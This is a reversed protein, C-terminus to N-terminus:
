PQDFIQLVAARFSSPDIAPYRYLRPEIAEFYRLAEGRDILGRWLMERVDGLDQTHGREVKALAQAYLDFHHFTLPGASAIFPSREEWGPKVPIFDSPAALEVNLALQEKLRPIARFLADHEPVLKVDVAITTARWGYLVATTGGTFYVRAPDQAADALATMFRQMRDADALQRMCAGREFRVLRRILANYRSHAADPSAQALRAYLRHEPRDFPQPVELGLTRLRPAGVSVLLAPVSEVAGALDELGQQVWESGPLWEHTVGRIIPGVRRCAGPSFTSSLSQMLPDDVERQIGSKIFPRECV